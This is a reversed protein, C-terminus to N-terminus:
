AELTILHGGLELLDFLQFQVSVHKFRMEPDEFFLHSHLFLGFLEILENNFLM